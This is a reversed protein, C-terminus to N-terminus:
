RGMYITAQENTHIFITNRITKNNQEINSAVSDLRANILAQQETNKSNAERIRQTLSEIRQTNSTIQKMQNPENSTANGTTM